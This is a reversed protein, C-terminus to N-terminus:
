GREPDTSDRRVGDFRGLREPRGPPLHERLHLQGESPSHEEEADILRDEERQRHRDDCAQDPAAPEAVDDRVTEVRVGREGDEGAERDHDDRDREVPRGLRDGVARVGGAAV